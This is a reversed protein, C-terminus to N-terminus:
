GYRRGFWGLHEQRWHRPSAPPSSKSQPAVAKKSPQPRIEAVDMRAERNWTSIRKVGKSAEVVGRTFEGVYKDANMLTHRGLVPGQGLHSRGGKLEIDENPEMFIQERIPVMQGARKVPKRGTEFLWDPIVPIDPHMHMEEFFPSPDNEQRRQGRSPPRFSSQQQLRRSPASSPRGPAQNGRTRRQREPAARRHTHGKVLRPAGTTHGQIVDAMDGHAGPRVGFGPAYYHYGEGELESPETPAGGSDSIAALENQVETLARATALLRAEISPVSQPNLEDEM